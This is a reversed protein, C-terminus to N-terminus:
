KKLALHRMYADTLWLMVLESSPKDGARYWAMVQILAPTNNIPVKPVCKLAFKISIWVNENIFICKLIDNAFHRDGQRSRSVNEANSAMQAPFEGTQPSNGACIGTARLKPTEKSRRRFLRNLFWDHPQHNSVSDRGNHRWQLPFASLVAELFDFAKNPVALSCVHITQTHPIDKTVCAVYWM